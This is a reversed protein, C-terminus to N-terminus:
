PCTTTVRPTGNSQQGYSGNGCANEGRSLYWFGAGPAPVDTDVLTPGALDAFCIEDGGGPGVPLASLLGRVADFRTAAPEAAWSFTTKDAAASVSQTESPAASSGSTCLGSGCVDGITCANGDSCATGNVQGVCTNPACANPVKVNTVAVDDLYFGAYNSAEDSSSQWHFRITDNPTLGTIQHCRHAYPSVGASTTFNACSDGDGLPGTFALKTDAFVCANYTTIGTCSLPEWGTTDDSADCGDAANNSPAPVDNWPGGNVSYEVAVADRHYEIQHREWYKL